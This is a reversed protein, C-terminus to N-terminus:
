SCNGKEAWNRFEQSEYGAGTITKEGAIIDRPGFIIRGISSHVYEISDAVAKKEERPRNFYGRLDAEIFLAIDKSDAGLKEGIWEKTLRQHM